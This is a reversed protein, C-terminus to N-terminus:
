QLPIEAGEPVDMPPFMGIPAKSKYWGLSGKGLSTRNTAVNAKWQIADIRVYRTEFHSDIYKIGKSWLRKKFAISREQSAAEAEAATSPDLHSTDEVAEDWAEKSVEKSANSRVVEVRAAEREDNDRNLKPAKGLKGSLRRGAPINRLIDALRVPILRREPDDPTPDLPYEFEGTASPYFFDDPLLYADDNKERVNIIVFRVKNLIMPFQRWQIGKRHWRHSVTEWDEEMVTRTYLPGEAKQLETMIQSVKRKNCTDCHRYDNCYTQTQVRHGTDLAPYSYWTGCFSLKHEIKAEKEMKEIFVTAIARAEDRTMAQASQNDPTTALTVTM